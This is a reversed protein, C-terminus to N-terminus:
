RSARTSRGSQCSYVIGSVSVLEISSFEVWYWRIIAAADDAIKDAIVTNIMPWFCNTFPIAVSAAFFLLIINIFIGSLYATEVEATNEMLGAEAM